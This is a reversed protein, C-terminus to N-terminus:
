HSDQIGSRSNTHIKFEPDQIKFRPDQIKFRSNTVGVKFIGEGTKTKYESLSIMSAAAFCFIDGSSTFLSTLFVIDLM